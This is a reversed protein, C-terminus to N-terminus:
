LLLQLPPCHPRGGDNAAHHVLNPGAARLKCASGHAVPNHTVPNHHRGVITKRYRQWAARCWQLRELPLPARLFTRIARVTHPPSLDESPAERSSGTCQPCALASAGRFHLASPHLLTLRSAAATTCSHQLRQNLRRRQGPPHHMQCRHRIGSPRSVERTSVKLSYRNWRTGPSSSSSRPSAQKTRSPAMSRPRYWQRLHPPTAKNQWLQAGWRMSTVSVGQTSRRYQRYQRNM